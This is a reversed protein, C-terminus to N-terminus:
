LALAVEYCTKRPYYEVQLHLHLHEEDVPIIFCIKCRGGSRYGVRDDFRYCFGIWIDILGWKKGDVGV